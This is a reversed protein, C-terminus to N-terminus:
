ELGVRSLGVRREAHRKGFQDIENMVNKEGEFQWLFIVLGGFIVLEKAFM